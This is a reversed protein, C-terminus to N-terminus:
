IGFIKVTQMDVGHIQLRPCNGDARGVHMKLCKKQSFRLKKLEIKTTIFLNLNRSNQGCTSIANLDDILSLLLIDALNKYKYIHQNHFFYEKGITDISNACLLSGWTGGLQVIRPM